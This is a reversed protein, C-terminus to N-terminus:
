WEGGKFGSSHGRSDPMAMSDRAKENQVFYRERNCLQNNVTSVKPM